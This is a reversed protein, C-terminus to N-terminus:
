SHDACTCDECEINVGDWCYTHEKYQGCCSCKRWGKAEYGEALMRRWESKIWEDHAVDVVATVKMMDYEVESEIQAPLRKSGVLFGLVWYYALLGMVGVLVFSCILEFM